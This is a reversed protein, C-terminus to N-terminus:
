EEIDSNSLFSQRMIVPEIQQNREENKVQNNIVAVSDEEEEKAEAETILNLPQTGM